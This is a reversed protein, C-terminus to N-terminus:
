LDPETVIELLPMGSRNYDVLTYKSHEMGGTHILKAPDEEMHVRNIRIIKEGTDTTISVTGNKALPFDYQSM